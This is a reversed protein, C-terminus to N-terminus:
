TTLSAYKEEKERRVKGVEPDTELADVFQIRQTFHRMGIDEVANVEFVRHCSPKEQLGRCEIGVIISESRGCHM